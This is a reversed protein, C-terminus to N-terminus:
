RPKRNGAARATTGNKRRPTPVEGHPPLRRVAIACYVARGGAWVGALSVALGWAAAPGSRAFVTFLLAVTAALAVALLGVAAAVSKRWWLLGALGAELVAVVVAAPGFLIAFCAEVAALVLVAVGLLRALEDARERSEVPGFLADAVRSVREADIM